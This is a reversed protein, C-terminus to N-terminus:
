ALASTPLPCRLYESTNGQVQTASDSSHLFSFHLLAAGSLCRRGPKESYFVARPVSPPMLLGRMLCLSPRFDVGSFMQILLDLWQSGAIRRAHTEWRSRFNHSLTRRFADGRQLGRFLGRNFTLSHCVIFGTLGRLKSPRVRRPFWRSVSRM